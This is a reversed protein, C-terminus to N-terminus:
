SISWLPERKARADAWSVHAITGMSLRPRGIVAKSSMRLEWRTLWVGQVGTLVSMLSAKLFDVKSFKEM